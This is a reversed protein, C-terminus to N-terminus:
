LTNTLSDSFYPINYLLSPMKSFGSGDSGYISFCYIKYSGCLLFFETMTNEVYEKTNNELSGLHIPITQTLTYDLHKLKYKLSINDTIIIYNKLPLQQIDVVYQIKELIISFFSDDIPLNMLTDGLRFHICIYKESDFSSKITNINNVISDCPNLISQLLDIDEKTYPIVEFSNTLLYVNLNNNYIHVLNQKIVEYDLPPILELTDYDTYEHIFISHNKLCQLSPHSNYLLFLPINYIRSLSILTLTGRLFDAFGPPQVNTKCKQLYNHIIMKNLGIRLEKFM